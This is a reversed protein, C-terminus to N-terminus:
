NSKIFHIETEFQKKSVWLEKNTLKLIKLTDILTSDFASQIIYEKKNYWIWDGNLTKSSLDISFTGDKKYAIMYYGYQGLIRDTIDQKYSYYRDLQWGRLLRYNKSLLSFNPGDPYKHCSTALTLLLILLYFKYKKFYM